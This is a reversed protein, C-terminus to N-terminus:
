TKKVFFICGSCFINFIYQVNLVYLTIVVATLLQKAITNTYFFYPPM